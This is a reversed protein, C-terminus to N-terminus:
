RQRIHGAFRLKRLLVLQQAEEDIQVEGADEVALRRALHLFQLLQRLPQKARLPDLKDKPAAWHGKAGKLARGAHTPFVAKREDAGIKIIRQPLAHRQPHPDAAALEGLEIGVVAQHKGASLLDVLVAEMHVGVMDNHHVIGPADYLVDGDDRDLVVPRLFRHAAIGAHLLRRINLYQLKVALAQDRGIQASRKVGVAILLMVMMGKLDTHGVDLAHHM